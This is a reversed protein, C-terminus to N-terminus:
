SVGVSTSRSAVPASPGLPSSRGASSPASRRGSSSPGSLPAGRTEALTALSGSGIGLRASGCFKKVMKCIHSVLRPWITALALEVSFNSSMNIIILCAAALAGNFM